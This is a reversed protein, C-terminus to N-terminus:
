KKVENVATEITTAGEKVANGVSTVVGALETAGTTIDGADLKGNKNRDLVNVAWSDGLFAQCLLTAVAGFFAASGLGVLIYSLNAIQPVFVAGYMSATIYGFLMGGFVMGMIAGIFDLKDVENGMTKAKMELLLPGVFAGIIVALNTIMTTEVMIKVGEIYPWLMVATSFISVLFGTGKYQGKVKKKFIRSLFDIVDFLLSTMLRVNM